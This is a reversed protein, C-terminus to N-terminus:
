AGSRRGTPATRGSFQRVSRRWADRRSSHRMCRRCRRAARPRKFIIEHRSATADQGRVHLFAGAQRMPFAPNHYRQDTRGLCANFAPTGRLKPDALFASAAALRPWRRGLGVRKAALTLANAPRTSQYHCFQATNSSLWARYSLRFLDDAGGCGISLLSGMRSKHGLQAHHDPRERGRRNALRDDHQHRLYKQDDHSRSVALDPEIAPALREIISQRAAVEPVEEVLQGDEEQDGSDQQDEIYRLFPEALGQLDSQALAQYTIQDVM